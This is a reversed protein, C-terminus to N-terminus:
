FPIDEDVMVEATETSTIKEARTELARIFRVASCVHNFILLSEDYSLTPNDHALSSENRVRSFAEMTSISPKLIRETMESEILGATRLAKVYEGFISHLPKDKDTSVGRKESLTRILKTVYTHLRDLGAEPENKEISDRVAKALVEFSRESGEPAIADIADVPASELLRTAIRKCEEFLHYRDRDSAPPRCYELLDSILKGVLYNPERTWFARLRNAKSGSAFEYKADYIDRGAIEGVFEAFTRNSFDLVYGGGMQFLRELKSKEIFTLDSM